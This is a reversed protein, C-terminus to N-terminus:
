KIQLLFNVFLQLQGFHLAVVILTIIFDVPPHLLSHYLRLLSSHPLLFNKGFNLPFSTLPISSCLPNSTHSDASKKKKNFLTLTAAGWASSYVGFSGKRQRLPFEEWKSKLLWIVYDRQIEEGPAWVQTSRTVRPCIGDFDQNSWILVWNPPSLCIQVIPAASFLYDKILEATAARLCRPAFSRGPTLVRRRPNLSRACPKVIFELPETSVTIPGPFFFFKPLRGATQDSCGAIM